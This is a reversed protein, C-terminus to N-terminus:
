SLSRCLKINNINWSDNIAFLIFHLLLYTFLYSDMIKQLIIYYSYYPSQKIYGYAQLGFACMSPVDCTGKNYSIHLM